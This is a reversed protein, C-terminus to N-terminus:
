AGTRTSQRASLVDRSRGSARAAIQPLDELKGVRELAPAEPPPISLAAGELPAELYGIFHPAHRQRMAARVLMAMRRSPRGVLLVREHSIGSQYQYDSWALVMRRQAFMLTFTCALFLAVLSRNITAQTLFYVILLGVFGAFHFRLLTVLLEVSSPRQRMTQHLGFAVILLLWIPAVLYVLTAHHKFNAAERLTPVFGQLRSHVTTALMMSAVITFLDLALQIVGLARNGEAHKFTARDRLDGSM